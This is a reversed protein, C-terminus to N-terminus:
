KLLLMRKTDSFSGTKITYFYVGASVLNGSTDTADWVLNYNGAQYAGDVITRVHRGLIDYVKLTVNGTNPVSFAITTTPNFPNPFNQQLAFEGPVEDSTLGTPTELVMHEELFSSNVFTTGSVYLMDATFKGDRLATFSFEALVGDGAYASQGYVANVLGVKGESAVPFSHTRATMFDGKDVGALTLASEDYQLNVSYGKVDAANQVVVHFTYTQGATMETPQNMLSVFADLNSAVPMAAPKQYIPQEGEVDTGTYNATAMTLDAEGVLNDENIDAWM